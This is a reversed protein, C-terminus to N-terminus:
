YNWGAIQNETLHVQLHGPVASGDVAAGTALAVTQITGDSQYLTDPLNDPDPIDNVLFDQVEDDGPRDARVVHILEHIDVSDILSTRQDGLDDIHKFTANYSLFKGQLSSILSWVVVRSQAPDIQGVNATLSPTTPQNGVQTGIIKFDILLGKQNDAITPQGSTIQFNKASGMGTNQVLLGLYFPESPEIPLTFPDDGIVDRQLFYHMHLVPDPFVTITDALLPVTVLNTGDYYSLTGGIRYVTPGNTAADHTPIFTYKATGSASAALKGTGDVATLGTLQPGRIDFLTSAPDQNNNRIDISVHVNTLATGSEGNDIELTGLFAARTIAVRQELRITVRACVGGAQDAKTVSEKGVHRSFSTAPLDYSNNGGYTWGPRCTPFDWVPIDITPL